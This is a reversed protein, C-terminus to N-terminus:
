AVHDQRDRGSGARLVAKTTRFLVELDSEALGAIRRLAAIDLVIFTRYGTDIVGESKLTRIVKEVSARSLMLAEALNTQSPGAVRLPGDNDTAVALEFLLTSVRQEPTRNFLNYIRETLRQREAVSRGMTLMILPHHEALARIRNIPLSITLTPTLCTAIPTQAQDDFVELDGLVAGPTRFRITSTAHYSAEEAVCGSTVFHVHNGAGTLVGRVREDRAFTRMVGSRMLEEQFVGPMKQLVSSTELLRQIRSERLAERNVRVVRPRRSNAYAM